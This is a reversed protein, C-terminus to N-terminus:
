YRKIIRDMVDANPWGNQIYDVIIKLSAENMPVVVVIHVVLKTEPDVPSKYSLYDRSLTDAKYM